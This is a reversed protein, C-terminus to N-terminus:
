YLKTCIVKKNIRVAFAICGSVPLHGSFVAAALPFSRFFVEGKESFRHARCGNKANGAILSLHFVGKEKGDEEGGGYREGPACILRLSRGTWGRAASRLGAGEIAADAVAAFRDARSGGGGTVPV